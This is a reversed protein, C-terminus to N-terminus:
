QGLAVLHSIYDQIDDSSMYDSADVDESIPETHLSSDNLAEAMVQLKWKLRSDVSDDVSDKCNLIHINTTVNKPLGLRHIRDQSQLFQAANYTRDVYIANHCVTHLSIGEACAAPNAVLVFANPDDHFRLIKGERTDWQEDSGADVGGHIYDAGICKLRRSITEVNEVFASWIVCKEGQSALELARSCAYEIKPSEGDLLLDRLQEPFIHANRAILAPNSALQLMRMASRGLSRLTNRDSTQMYKRASEAEKSRLLDYLQRQRSGMELNIKKITPPKLGLEAKTTRVFVPLFRDVINTENSQVEPYLFRFQPLLDAQSNPLPTGTLILKAAPLHSLSLVCAGWQGPPWRKIHHSEDLFMFCEHSTLFDAVLERDNLLKQYNVLVIDPSSDLIDRVQKKSGNLRAVKLKQAPACLALQEEWASFANKPAVVVLKTKTNKHFFYFALAETTKGAGPVSFTAGSYRQVLKAVNRRQEKTLTRAFGKKKLTAILIKQTINGTPSSYQKSQIYSEELLCEASESLRVNEDEGGTVLLEFIEQKVALFGSWPMRVEQDSINFCEDSWELCLRRIHRWSNLHVGIISAEQKDAEYEITLSAIQDM